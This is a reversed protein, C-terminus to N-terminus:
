PITIKRIRHYAEGEGGNGDSVYVAKGDPSVEIQEQGYFRASAGPGDAHGQTGDGAVTEVGGTSTIRRIRHNYTDSIYVNGAADVAVDQPFDFRARQKDADDRMGPYGEGAFVTVDGDLTVRRIVNNMADAVLVNGDPLVAVGYPDNFQAEAGRGNVFGATGSGALPTVVGDALNLISISHRERDTMVVRGDLLRALGRPRGGTELFVEPVGGSLPLKWLTGTTPGKGGNRDRDTQVYIAEETALLAFPDRFGTALTVTPGSPPVKRLRGGDYETVLLAGSADLFVGVPNEFQAAAGVGDAAGSASSGAITEVMVDPAPHVVPPELRTPPENGVASAGAAADDGGDAGADAAVANLARCGVVLALAGTVFVVRRIYRAEVM